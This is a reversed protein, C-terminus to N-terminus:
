CRLEWETARSGEDELTVNAFYLHSRIMEGILPQM